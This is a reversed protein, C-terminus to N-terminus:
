PQEQLVLRPKHGNIKANSSYCTLDIQNLSSVTGEYREGKAEGIILVTGNLTWHSGISSGQSWKITGNENFTVTQTNTGPTWQWHFTKGALQIQEAKVEPEIPNGLFDNVVKETKWFDERYSTLHVAQKVKNSAISLLATKVKEDETKAIKDALVREEDSLRLRDLERNLVKLLREQEKQVDKLYEERLKILEDQYHKEAKVLAAPLEPEKNTEEAFLSHLFCAMLIIALSFFNRM